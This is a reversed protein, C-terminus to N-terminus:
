GHLAGFRDGFPHPRRGFWPTTVLRRPDSTVAVRRAKPWYLRQMSAGETPRDMQRVGDRTIAGTHYGAAGYAGTSWNAEAVREDPKLVGLAAQRFEDRVLPLSVPHGTGGKVGSCKGAQAQGENWHRAASRVFARPHGRVAKGDLANRLLRLLVMRFDRGIPTSSAAVFTPGGSLPKRIRAFHDIRYQLPPLQLTPGQLMCSITAIIRHHRPTPRSHGLSCSDGDETRSPVRTPATQAKTVPFNLSAWNGPSESDRLRRRRRNKVIAVTILPARKTQEARVM